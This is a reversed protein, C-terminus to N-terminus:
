QFLAGAPVCEQSRSSFAERRRFTRSRLCLGLGSHTPPNLSGERSPGGLGTGTRDQAPGPGQGSGEAPGPGRGSGKAAPHPLGMFAGRM